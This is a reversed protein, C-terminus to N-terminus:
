RVFVERSRQNAIKILRAGANAQGRKSFARNIDELIALAPTNQAATEFMRLVNRSKEEVDSLDFTYPQIYPHAAMVRITASKGNGPSGWFLYGRRCPLNHQRFWEERQFFLEFDTRVMRQATADLVVSDWDYPAPLRTRNYPTELYRETQSGTSTSAETYAATMEPKSHRLLTQSVV